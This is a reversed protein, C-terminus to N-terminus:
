SFDSLPMSNTFLGKSPVICCIVVPESVTYAERTKRNEKEVGCKRCQAM